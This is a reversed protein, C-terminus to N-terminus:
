DVRYRKVIEENLEVGLGPAESVTVYGDILPPHGVVLENLLPSDRVPYEVLPGALNSAAWHVSAAINIGTSFCHPIAWIGKEHAMDSIQRCVTLGGARCVDPQLIDVRGREALDRFSYITGEAEGAAIRMDVADSLKAYGELDDQDLPEELWFIDYQEFRHAMQIATAADWQLGVDVMLDIKDGLVKRASRVLAVDLEPDKGMPGWGFKVATLKRQLFPEAIRETEEPTEGWLTSAYARIRKKYAGGLLKYVPTKTAKGVIDWLAIDVGSIAHIAAGRRGYWLTGRYMKDWLASIQFPDEGEVLAALGWRRPASRPAEVIAKCVYSGSMIEGLGTIGEDTEVRVILVEQSGDAMNRILPLRLRIAEVKTIKM